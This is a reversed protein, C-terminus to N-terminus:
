NHMPKPGRGLVPDFEGSVVLVPVETNPPNIQQAVGGVTRELGVKGDDVPM